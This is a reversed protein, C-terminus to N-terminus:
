NLILLSFVNIKRTIYRIDMPKISCAISVLDVIKLFNIFNMRHLFEKTSRKGVFFAVCNIKCLCIYNKKQVYCARLLNFLYKYSHDTTFSFGQLMVLLVGPLANKVKFFQAAIKKNNHTVAFRDNACVRCVASIM